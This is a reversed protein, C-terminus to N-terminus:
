STPQSETSPNKKELFVNFAHLTAIAMKNTTGRGTTRDYPVMEFAAIVIQGLAEIAQMTKLLQLPDGSAVAEDVSEADTCIKEMTTQRVIAESSMRMRLMNPDGHVVAGDGQDYAFVSREEPTFSNYPVDVVTEAAM